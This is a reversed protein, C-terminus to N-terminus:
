SVKAIAFYVQKILEIYCDGWTEMCLIFIGQMWLYKDVYCATFSFM